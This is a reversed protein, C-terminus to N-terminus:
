SKSTEFRLLNTRLSEPGDTIMLLKRSTEITFQNNRLSMQSM